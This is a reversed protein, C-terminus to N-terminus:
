FLLSRDEYVVSEQKTKRYGYPCFHRKAEITYLTANYPNWFNQFGKKLATCTAPKKIVM